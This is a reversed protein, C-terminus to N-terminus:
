RGWFAAIADLRLYGSGSVQVLKLTHAASTLTSSTWVTRRLLVSSSRTSVTTVYHGDVYVKFRGGTSSTTAVVALKRAAFNHKPLSVAVSGGSGTVSTTGVWAGTTSPRTWAGAYKLAVDRDDFPVTTTATAGWRVNGWADTSGMTTLYTGPWPPPGLPEHYVGSPGALVADPGTGTVYDRHANVRAAAGSVGAGVSAYTVPFSAGSSVTSALAPASATPGIILRLHGTVPTSENGAGDLAWVSWSYTAGAVLGTVTAAHAVGLTTTRRAGAAYTAPPTMGPSFAIRVGVLDPAAISSWTLGVSTAGLTLAPTPMDPATTDSISWPSSYTTGTRDYASSVVESAVASGDVPVVVSRTPTSNPTTDVELLLHSDDPSWHAGAYGYTAYTQPLVTVLGGRPSITELVSGAPQGTAGYLPVQVLIRSGDHSWSMLRGSVGLPTVATGDINMISIKEPSVGYGSPQAFVIQQGSPSLLYSTIESLGALKTGPVLTKAGDIGVVYLGRSEPNSILDPISVLVHQNDPLWEPRGIESDTAHPGPTVVHTTRDYFSLQDGFDLATGDIWAVRNGDRSVAIRTWDHTLGTTGPLATDAKTGLDIVNLSGGGDFPVGPSYAYVVEDSTDARAAPAAGAVGALVLSVSGVAALATRRAIARM